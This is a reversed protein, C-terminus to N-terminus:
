VYVGCGEGTLLPHTAIAFRFPRVRSITAFTGVSSRQSINVAVIAANVARASATLLLNLTGLSSLTTGDVSQDTPLPLIDLAFTTDEM